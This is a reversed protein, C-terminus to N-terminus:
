KLYERIVAKALAESSDVFNLREKSKTSQLVVNLDTCAIVVTDVGEAIINEKLENWKLNRKEPNEGSKVMSILENIQHQWSEKFIYEYGRTNFQDQYLGSKRTSETGFLTVKKSEPIYNITEKIINLLPVEIESALKEYYKHATNCPIAIFSVDFSELRKLGKVITNKLEEHNIPRDLYFPTPLSYIIIDPFDIDDKAGYQKQCQDLVLELFPSTSRPGMGALIGITKM